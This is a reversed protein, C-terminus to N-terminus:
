DAGADPDIDRGAKTLKETKNPDDDDVADAGSQQRDLPKRDGHLHREDGDQSTSAEDEGGDPNFPRAASAAGSPARADSNDIPMDTRWHDDVRIIWTKSGSFVYIM